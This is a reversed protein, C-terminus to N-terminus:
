LEFWEGSGDVLLITLNFGREDSYEGKSDKVLIGNKDKVLVQAKSFRLYVNVDSYAPSGNEHKGDEVHYSKTWTEYPYSIYEGCMARLKQRIEKQRLVEQCETNQRLLEETKDASIDTALQVVDIVLLLVQMCVKGYSSVSGLTMTRLFVTFHTGFLRWNELLRAHVLTQFHRTHFKSMVELFSSLSLRVSHVLYDVMEFPKISVTLAQSKM